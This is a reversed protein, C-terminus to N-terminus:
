AILNKHKPPLTTNCPNTQIKKKEGCVSLIRQFAKNSGKAFFGKVEHLIWFDETPDLDEANNWLLFLLFYVNPGM